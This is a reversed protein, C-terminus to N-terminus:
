ILYGFRYLQRILEDRSWGLRQAEAYLSEPTLRVARGGRPAGLRQGALGRRSAGQLTTQVTRGAISVSRLDRRANTVQAIDAGDNIALIDAESWGAVRRQALTMSEYLARPSQPMIVEAAPVNVCDCQPHRAFGANYRYWRGALVACRSCCPATVQRVYGAIRRDNVMAVGVSVRSADQIQTVVIRELHRLAVGAAAREDLGGALLGAAQFVPYDLLTSLDRGDSAVGAFASPPVQGSPQSRSGSLTVATTVYDQAGRAAEGQGATVISLVLPRIM